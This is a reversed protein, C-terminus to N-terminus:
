VRLLRRRMSMFEGKEGNARATKLTGQYIPCNCKGDLYEKNALYHDLLRDSHSDGNFLNTALPNIDRYGIVPGNGHIFEGTEKDIRDDKRLTAVPLANHFAHHHYIAQDAAETEKKDM